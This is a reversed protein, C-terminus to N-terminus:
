QDAGGPEAEIDIEFVLKKHRDEHVCTGHAKLDHLTKNLYPTLDTRNKHCFYHDGPRRTEKLRKYAEEVVQGVTEELRANFSKEEATTTYLATVHVIQKEDHKEDDNINKKTEGM